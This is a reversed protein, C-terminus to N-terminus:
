QNVIIEEYGGTAHIQVIRIKITLAVAAKMMLPPAIVRHVTRVDDAGVQILLPKKQVHGNLFLVHQAVFTLPM